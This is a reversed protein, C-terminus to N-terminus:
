VVEAELRGTPISQRRLRREQDSIMRTARQRHVSPRKDEFPPQSEAGLAHKMRGRVIDQHGRRSKAVIEALDAHNWGRAGAHGCCEAGPAVHDDPRPSVDVRHAVPAFAIPSDETAALAEYALRDARADRDHRHGTDPAM